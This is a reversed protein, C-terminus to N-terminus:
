LLTMVGLFFVECVHFFVNLSISMVQSPLNCNCKLGHTKDNENCEKDMEM